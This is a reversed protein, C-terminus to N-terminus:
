YIHVHNSSLRIHKHVAFFTFTLSIIIGGVIMLLFIAAVHYDVQNFNVEPLGENLGMIMLALMASAIVGAYLGQLTASVLFPRTIFWRTAGVLKMTNIIHRKAFITIRITNNLLILSIMLLTTGFLLLVLNFKNINSSIQEIVNRQYVVEDVGDIKMLDKELSSLIEKDSSKANLRIEFSNPLPNEQLFDVFDDGLYTKFEEAAADKSVFKVEKIEERKALQAKLEKNRQDDNEDSLMVYITVSEKLTETANLAGLILYGVAGLLFLVLSISVTSIFKANRVRRKIRQSNDISM